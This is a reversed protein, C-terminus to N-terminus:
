GEGEGRPPAPLPWNKLHLDRQPFPIEIGHERFAEFIASNLEHTAPIRDPPAHLHVWINFNLSSDGYAEFFIQPPPDHLVRPNARCVEELLRTVQRVDSSYSVGVKLALRNVTWGYHTWNTIKNAILESNPIVLVCRDATVFITSRVRIERVTGWQGDVILLDGVKIPREFLLILGSIFNNVINQLGFGIGVGLAGAMLALNTLPFGLISLAIVIGFILVVYHLTTSVTYQIGTDWGTRPFVRLTLISRVLRSGWFTLYLTLFAFILYLPTITLTGLTPGRNLWSLTHLVTEGGIGWIKMTFALLILTAVAMALRSAVQHLRFLAEEQEPFLRGAWGKQPHIALHLLHDAGLWLLWALLFAIGTAATAQALYFALNHFGLLDSLLVTGLLLLVMARLLRMLNVNRLWRPGPLEPLLRSLHRSRLLWLAWVLLGLGFFHRVMQRGTAPFDVLSIVALLWLGFCLYALFFWLSRRYYRATRDELALLGGARAGAFIRRALRTTLRWLAFAALFYLPIRALLHDMVGLTWCALAAWFWLTLATLSHWCVHALSFLIRASQGEAQSEWSHLAPEVQANLRRMAGFLFLLLALLVLVQALHLQLFAALRGSAVLDTGERWARGPLTVLTQLLGKIQEWSSSATRRKLLEAKWTEEVHKKLDEQVDLLFLRRDKLGALRKEQTALFKGAEDRYANGLQQFRQFAQLLQRSRAVPHRSARLREMEGKLTAQSAERAALNKRFAEMEATLEDVLGGLKKAEGSYKALAGEAEPVNLTKVAMAAKLAAVEGKLGQFDKEAQAAAGQAAANKAKLATLEKELAEAGEAFLRPLAEPTAAPAELKEPPEPKAQAFAVAATGLLAFVLLVAWWVRSLGTFTM